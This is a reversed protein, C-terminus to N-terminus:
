PLWELERNMVRSMLKEIIQVKALNTHKTADPLDKVAEWRVLSKLEDLLMLMAAQQMLRREAGPTKALKRM